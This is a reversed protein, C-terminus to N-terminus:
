TLHHGAGMVNHLRRAAQSPASNVDMYLQLLEDYYLVERYDWLLSSCVPQVGCDTAAHSNGALHLFLRHVM